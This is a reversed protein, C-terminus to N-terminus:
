KFDLNNCDVLKLKKGQQKQRFVLNDKEQLM